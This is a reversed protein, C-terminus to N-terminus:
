ATSEFFAAFLVANNGFMNKPLLANQHSECAHGNLLMTRWMLMLPVNM